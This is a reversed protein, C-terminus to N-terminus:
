LTVIGASKARSTLRTASSRLTVMLRASTVRASRPICASAAARAFSVAAYSWNM